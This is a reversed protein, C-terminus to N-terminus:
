LKDDIGQSSSNEENVGAGRDHEEELLGLNEATNRSIHPAVAQLKGPLKDIYSSIPRSSESSHQM